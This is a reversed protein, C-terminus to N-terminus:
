DERIGETLDVDSQQIIGRKLLTELNEQNHKSSFAAELSSLSIDEEVQPELFRLYSQYTDGVIQGIEYGHLTHEKGIDGFKQVMKRIVFGDTAVINCIREAEGYNISPKRGLTGDLNREQRLPFYHYTLKADFMAQLTYHVDEDLRRLYSVAENLEVFSPKEFVVTEVRSDYQQQEQPAM